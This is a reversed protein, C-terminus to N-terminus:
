LGDRHHSDILNPPATVNQFSFSNNETLQQNRLQFSPIDQVERWPIDLDLEYDSDLESDSSYVLHPLPDQIPDQQSPVQDPNTPQLHAVAEDLAQAVEILEEDFDLFEM